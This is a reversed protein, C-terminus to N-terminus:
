PARRHVEQRIFPWVNPGTSLTRIRSAEPSVVQEVTIAAQPYIKRNHKAVTSISAGLLAREKCIAIIMRIM